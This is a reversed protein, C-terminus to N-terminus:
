LVCACLNILCVFSSNLSLCPLDGDRAERTSREGSLCLSSCFLVDIFGNFPHFCLKLLVSQPNLTRSLCVSAVM